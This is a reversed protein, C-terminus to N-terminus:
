KFSSSKIRDNVSNYREALVESSSFPAFVRYIDIPISLHYSVGTLVLALNAGIRKNGMSITLFDAGLPYTIRPLPSSVTIFIVKSSFSRCSKLIFMFPNSGNGNSLLPTSTGLTKRIRRLAIILWDRHSTSSITTMPFKENLLNRIHFSIWLLASTNFCFPITFLKISPFNDISQEPPSASCISISLVNETPSKAKGILASEDCISAMEAATAPFLKTKCPGGPVPLDWVIM